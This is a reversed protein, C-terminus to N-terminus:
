ALRQGILRVETANGAAAQQAARRTLDSLVQEADRRAETELYGRVRSGTGSATASALFGIRSDHAAVTTKRNKHDITAKFTLM